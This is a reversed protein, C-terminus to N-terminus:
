RIHLLAQRYAFKLLASGNDVCLKGHGPLVMDTEVCSLKRMSEVIDPRSFGLDGQWGFSVENIQGGAPQLADGTFLMAKGDIEAKISLSGRTHGPTRYLTLALGCLTIETDRDILIDPEFAPYVQDEFPSGLHYCGGARCYAADETGVVIKAGADQFEKGGGAHDWHAHTLIVYSIPDPIGCEALTKKIRAPGTGVVGCDILIFGDDTRIGYVDGLVDQNNVAGYYSGSLVYVHDSVRM